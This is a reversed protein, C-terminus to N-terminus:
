QYFDITYTVVRKIETNYSFLSSVPDESAEIKLWMQYLGLDSHQMM